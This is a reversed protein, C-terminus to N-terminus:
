SVPPQPVAVPNIKAPPPPTIGLRAYIDEGTQHGLALLAALDTADPTTNGRGAQVDAMLKIALPVLTPAAQLLALLATSTFM